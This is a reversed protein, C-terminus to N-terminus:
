QRRETHDTEWQLENLLGEIQSLLPGPDTGMSAYEGFVGDALRRVEAYGQVIPGSRIAPALHTRWRDNLQEILMPIGPRNEVVATRIEDLGHALEWVAEEERERQRLRLAIEETRRAQVRAAIVGAAIASAGAIVGGILAAIVGAMFDSVGVL